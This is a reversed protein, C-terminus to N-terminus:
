SCRTAKSYNHMIGRTILGPKGTGIMRAGVTTIPVIERISSTLFVESASELEQLYLPRMDSAPIGVRALIELVIKRTIGPLAGCVLPPTFVTGDSIFFLNAAAAESLHGETDLFILDDADRHDRARFALISQLSATTKIGTEISFENRPTSAIDARIGDAYWRADLTPLKDVLTILTGRVLTIRLFSDILGTDVARAIEGGILEEIGPGPDLQLRDASRAFRELHERLRFPKGGYIRLTEFIGKQLLFEPEVTKRAAAPDDLISRNVTLFM